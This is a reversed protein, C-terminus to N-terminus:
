AAFAAANNMEYEVPSEYDLASHMRERNYFNEIYESVVRHSGAGLNSITTWSCSMSLRSFFRLVSSRNGLPLPKRYPAPVPYKTSSDGKRCQCRRSHLGRPPPSATHALRLQSWRPTREPKCARYISRQSCNKRSISSSRRSTVSQLLELRHWDVKGVAAERWALVVATRKSRADPHPGGYRSASGGCYIRIHRSARDMRLNSTVPSRCSCFCGAFDASACKTWALSHLSYLRNCM